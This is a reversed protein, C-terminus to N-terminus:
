GEGHGSFEYYEVHSQWEGEDECPCLGMFRLLSGILDTAALDAASVVKPRRKTM